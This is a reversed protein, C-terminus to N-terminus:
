SCYPSTNNRIQSLHNNNMFEIDSNKLDFLEKFCRRIGAVGTFDYKDVLIDGLNKSVDFNYKALLGIAINKGVVGDVETNSKLINNIFRHPFNNVLSVWLDKITAEFYTWNNVLTNLVLNDISDALLPVKRKLESLQYTAEKHIKKTLSDNSKEAIYNKVANQWEQSERNIVMKVSAIAEMYLQMSNIERRGEIAIFEPLGLSILNLELNDHYVSLLNKLDTNQIRDKLKEIADLEIGVDLM